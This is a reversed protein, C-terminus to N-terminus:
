GTPVTRTRSRSTGDSGTNRASRILLCSLKAARCSCEGERFNRACLITGDTQRHNSRDEEPLALNWGLRYQSRFSYALLQTKRSPLRM